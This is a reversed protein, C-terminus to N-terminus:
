DFMEFNRDLNGSNRDLIDSDLRLINENDAPRIETM